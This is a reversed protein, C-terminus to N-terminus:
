RLKFLKKFSCLANKSPLKIGYTYEELLPGTLLVNIILLYKSIIEKWNIRRMKQPYQTKEQFILLNLYCIKSQRKLCFYDSNDRWTGIKNNTGNQQKHKIVRKYTPTFTFRSFVKNIMNPSKFERSLWTHMKFDSKLYNKKFRM